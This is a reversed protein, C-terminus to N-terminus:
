EGIWLVHRLVESDSVHLGCPRSGDYPCAHTLHQLQSGASCCVACRSLRASARAASARTALLRDGGGGGGCQRSGPGPICCQDHRMPRARRRGIPLPCAVKAPRNNSAGDVILPNPKTTQRLLALLALLVPLVAPRVGLRGGRPGRSWVRSVCRSLMLARRIDEGTGKPGVHPSRAGPCQGSM